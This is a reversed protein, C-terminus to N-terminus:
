NMVGKRVVKVLRNLWQFAGETDSQQEVADNGSAEDIVFLFYVGLMRLDDNFESMDKLQKPPM